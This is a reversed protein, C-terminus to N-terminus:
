NTRLARLYVRRLYMRAEVIPTAGFLQLHATRELENVRNAMQTHLNYDTIPISRGPLGPLPATAPNVPFRM